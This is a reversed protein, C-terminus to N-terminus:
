LNLLLQVIPPGRAPLPSATRLAVVAAPAAHLAYSLPSFPEASCRLVPPPSALSACLPCDMSQSRVEQAGDDTMIIVKMVGTGTCILQTAQPNVLPSAM